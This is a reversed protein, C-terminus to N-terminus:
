NTIYEFMREDVPPIMKFQINVIPLDVGDDNKKTTPTFDFPQMDGMYYFDSGESDSKKIFLLIRLGSKQYNQLEIIEKSDMRVKNRTMWSFQQSSVLEDKYKTSESIHESKNYTVFIPCTNNKIRYGYVTSAEDKEWNLIRCVDKRSYKQYLLFGGIYNEKSYALTFIAKSYNVIDSLYTKFIPKLLAKQLKDNLNIKSGEQNISKPKFYKNIEQSKNFECNLNRIASNITENSPNFSFQEKIKQKISEISIITNNIAEELIFIDEIRKGNGIEKSYFELFGKENVSLYGNFKDDYSSVFNYYSNSYEVFGYPDRSGHELYDMMLPIRGLKYKLLNYEKLLDKKTNVKAMDISEFIRQKTIYDFNVTSAGPITSNGSNILKRLTDKNYSNDGYLAIPILYNNSYNGIFDIVVLYEKHEKKRLGRGLQQVFIISSQTPRLMIIQNVSPIDVGENFIDVTFIYDLSLDLNSDEELQNIARERQEESSSGDLAVTKYGRLNFQKSLEIAEEVRSCFVLGKVRGHDCGYLKSKEIIREVREVSILSNFSATESIPEGNVEIDSIGYYHFTCLMNEELARNLRIEYAINHDFAKFINFGDMREPTATMGLLFKPKFYELISQYSIAGSRHAEDIVIYDFFYPAFKKMVYDKSLTQITCFLFDSEYDKNNGSLIGMSVANGFIRQFSKMANCTINERHVIFLLKKPQYIKADFASLYTKGTGTASILLAKNKGDNRLNNISTLAEIQMKNPSIRFLTTPEIKNQNAIFYSSELQAARTKTNTSINNNYTNDSYEITNEQNSYDNSKRQNSYNTSREKYIKQYENIWEDTVTVANDFTYNFEDMTQKLLSGESMSSVKINWEKNYSLADQTLNSSGVILTYKDDKRFIYGKTHYNNEVVIKVEVNRLQILRQLAKPETFNQYQSAIIKGKVGREELEKLIMILSAVGSNTIFATSFFFEECKNLENVISTLVKQGTKSNNILLKPRYEELSIERYDIFGTYLSKALNEQISM